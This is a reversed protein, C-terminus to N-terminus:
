LFVKKRERAMPFSFYYFVILPFSSQLTGSNAAVRQTGVCIPFLWVVEMLTFLSLFQLFFSFFFVKKWNVVSPAQFMDSDVNKRWRKGNRKKKLVFISSEFICKAGM